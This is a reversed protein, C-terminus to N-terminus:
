RQPDRRFLSLGVADVHTTWRDAEPSFWGDLLRLVDEVSRISRDV